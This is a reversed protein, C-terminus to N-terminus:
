SRSSSSRDPEDDSSAETDSGTDSGTDDEAPPEGDPPLADWGSSGDPNPPDDSRPQDM